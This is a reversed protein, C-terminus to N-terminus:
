TTYTAMGATPPRMGMATTTCGPHARRLTMVRQDLLKSTYECRCAAAHRRFLAIWRHTRIRAEINNFESGIDASWRRIIDAHNRRQALIGHEPFCARSLWAKRRLPSM